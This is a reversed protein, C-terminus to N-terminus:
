CNKLYFRLQLDTIEIADAFDNAVNEGKDADYYPKDSKTHPLEDGDIIFKGSAKLQDMLQLYIPYLVPKFVKEYRDKAKWEARSHHIIAIRLQSTTYLGTAQGINEDFSQFLVIVPYKKLQYSVSSDKQKMNEVIEYPHGYQYFVGQINPDFASLIANLTLGSRNRTGDPLWYPVSAGTADVISGIEDVVYIPLRMM